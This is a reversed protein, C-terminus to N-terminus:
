GLLIARERFVAGPIDGSLGSWGAFDPAFLEDPLNRAIGLVFRRAVEKNLEQMAKSRTLRAFPCCDPAFTADAACMM